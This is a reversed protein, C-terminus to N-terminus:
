SGKDVVLESLPRHPVPQPTEAAYGLPTLAIPRQTDPLKLAAAVQKEEFAGIWCTALGQDAAALQAYAMAIITDQPSYNQEIIHGFAKARTLDACFVLVVPAQAVFDQGFALLALTEKTPQDRIVYVKYAQLNSASPAHTAVTLVTQLKAPEVPKQQYKRVSQRTRVLEMLEM